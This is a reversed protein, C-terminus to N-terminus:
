RTFRIKRYYIFAIGFLLVLVSPIIMNIFIWKKRETQLRERDLLRLKFERGRLTLLNNDDALYQVLNVLFDKNGFTQRTYRDFGLPSISIGQSTYKFDNEIIDGDAIVAMRTPISKKILIPVEDFYKEMGRNKFASEFEGELLVGTLYSKNDFDSQQPNEKIEELSIMIPVERERSYPSSTLLPIKQVGKRAEITDITNVFKNLVFNLNQTVPHDTNPAILPYYLWPAPQFNPTNGALAVNVPIVNCQIDQLLVPNIRVGYRFLLDDINLDNIFAMTAGNILSDLSVQVLDLLWLVKGGNMIYQDLVFKDAESFPKTPKAIIVAKFDDLVGPTGRIQGRDIQYTKSLETSIDNVAYESLEGHGELFAIRETKTNTINKISSVFAYELGEISNNLNQEAGLGPNNMLLNLPIEIDKYSIIAAPFIIKESMGGEKDRHHINTPRLGKGFLEEIIKSQMKESVDEFPNVFEYQFKSKGYVRFEDMLDRISGQFKRFPINLEGDLYVRIFIYDDLNRLIDKSQDSLTYRKEATLDLRFFLKQNIFNLLFVIALVGFVATVDNQFNSIDNAKKILFFNKKQWTRSHLKTRTFYLFLVIVSLFYIIDRSDIVGRQLSKYHADIGLNIILNGIRGTESLYGISDFGIYFFFCLLVALIFAIIINDTISSAFLGIASYAAALFILGIYSGWTAGTDIHMNESGLQYVSYFFILTPLIALVAVSLSAFFKALIIQMDSLPRTLLLDLNGSKKEEAISRMTIAPILFLFIWPAIIFVTELTGYGADFVNMEGPFVWVFLGSVVLFVVIVIYGTISSFFGAVEKLFLSKM